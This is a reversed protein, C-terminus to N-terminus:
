ELEEEVRDYDVNYTGCFPCHRAQELFGHTNTFVSYETDCEVCGLGLEIIEDDFEEDAPMPM